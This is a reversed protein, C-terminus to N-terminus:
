RAARSPRSRPRAARRLRDIRVSGRADDEEVVDAVQPHAAVARDPQHHRQRVQSPDLRARMADLSGDAGHLRNQM